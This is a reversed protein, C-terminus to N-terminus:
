CEKNYGMSDPKISINQKNADKPIENIFNSTNYQSLNPIQPLPHTFYDCLHWNWDICDSIGESIAVYIKQVGTSWIKDYRSNNRLYQYKQTIFHM